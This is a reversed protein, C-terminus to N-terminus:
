TPIQIHYTFNLSLLEGVKLSWVAFIACPAMETGKLLHVITGLLVHGGTNSESGSNM